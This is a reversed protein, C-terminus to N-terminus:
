RNDVEKRAVYYAELKDAAYQHYDVNLDSIATEILGWCVGRLLSVVKFMKLKRMTEDTYHGQYCRILEKEMETTLFCHGSLCALEFMPNGIGAYEWDILWMKTGDYIWNEAALDNHCFTPAFPGTEEELRQAEELAQDIGAPM